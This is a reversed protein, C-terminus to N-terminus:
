DDCYCEVYFAIANGVEKPTSAEYEAGSGSETYIYVYGDEITVELNVNKM